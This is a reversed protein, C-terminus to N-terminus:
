IRVHGHYPTDAFNLRGTAGTNGKVSGGVARYSGRRAAKMRPHVKSLCLPPLVFDDGGGGGRADRLLTLNHAIAFLADLSYEFLGFM